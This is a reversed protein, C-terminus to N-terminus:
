VPSFGYVHLTHLLVKPSKPVRLACSPVCALVRFNAHVITPHLLLNATLFLKIVCKLTCLPSFGNAHGVQPYLNESRLLLFLWIRLFWCIFSWTATNKFWLPRTFACLLLLLFALKTVTRAVSACSRAFCFAMAAFYKNSFCLFASLSIISLLLFFCRRKSNVTRFFFLALLKSIAPPVLKIPHYHIYTYTTRLPQIYTAPAINWLMHADHQSYTM